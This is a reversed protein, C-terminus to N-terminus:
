FYFFEEEHKCIRKNFESVIFANRKRTSKTPLIHLMWLIVDDIAFTSCILAENMNMNQVVYLKKKNFLIEFVAYKEDKSTNTCYEWCKPVFLFVFALFISVLIFIFYLISLINKRVHMLSFFFTSHCAMLLHYYYLMFYQITIDLCFFIFFYLFLM